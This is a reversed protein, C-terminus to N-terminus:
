RSTAWLRRTLFHHDTLALPAAAERTDCGQRPPALAPGDLAARPAPGLLSGRCEVRPLGIMGLFGAFQHGRAAEPAVEFPRM